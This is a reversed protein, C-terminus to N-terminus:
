FAAVSVPARERRSLARLMAVQGHRRLAVGTLLGLVPVLAEEPFAPTEVGVSVALDDSHVAIEM